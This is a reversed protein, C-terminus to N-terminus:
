RPHVTLWETKRESMKWTKEMFWIMVAEEVCSVCVVYVSEGKRTKTNKRTKRNMIRAVRSLMLSCKSLQDRQNTQQRTKIINNINGKGKKLGMGRRPAFAANACLVFSYSQLKKMGPGKNNIKKPFTHAKKGNKLFHVEFFCLLENLSKEAFPFIYNYTSHFWFLLFENLTLKKKGRKTKKEECM